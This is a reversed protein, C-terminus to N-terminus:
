KSHAPIATGAQCSRRAIEHVGIRDVADALRENPRLDGSFIECMVHVAILLMKEDTFDFLTRALQPHRGLKGGILATFGPEGVVLAQAPCVVACDGCNVCRTTALLPKNLSVTVADERCM